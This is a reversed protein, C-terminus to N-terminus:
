LLSLIDEIIDCEITKSKGKVSIVLNKRLFIESAIAKIRDATVREFAEKRQEVSMYTEDMIHTEYAMAWNLGECDDLMIDCNDVYSASALEIDLSLDDYKLNSFCRIAIDISDYLKSSEVEFETSIVGINCFQRIDSDYSYVFGTKDSLEIFFKCSDGSFLIDYLLYLEPISYKSKDFDFSLKVSCYNQEKVKIDRERNLFGEPIASRNDRKQGSFNLLQYKEILSALKKVGNDEFSGTVYAFVNGSSLAKEHEEKLAKLSIANISKVTGTIIGTLPTGNWVTKDSFFTLSAKDNNEAIERKIRKKELNFDDKKLELNNFIGSIIEAADDFHRVAGCVSFMIFEDYTVADFQLGKRDLLKYFKYDYIINLNRVICHELLHSTGNQKEYLMGSKIYFRICFKHLHEQKYSYIDVGNETIIKNEM